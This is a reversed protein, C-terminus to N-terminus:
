RSALYEKVIGTIRRSVDSIGASADVVKIRGPEQKALELYGKRVRQHFAIEELEIRDTKNASRNRKLGEEPDLDLLITLSPRFLNTAIRDLTEISSLDLGRGYGQYALTSDTFRDTIVTKGQDLAPGIKEHIHQARSAFYLLLETMEAMGSHEVSLLLQRIKGGIVSGGPEETLLTQLGQLTLWESLLKGQTSKGTGEIGELSIFLGKM